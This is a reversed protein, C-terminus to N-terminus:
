TQMAVVRLCLLARAERPQEPRLAVGDGETACRQLETETPRAVARQPHRAGVRDDHVAVRAGSLEHEGVWAPVDEDAVRRV